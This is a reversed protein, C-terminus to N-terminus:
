EDDARLCEERLAPWLELFSRLRRVEEEVSIAERNTRASEAGIDIVDAGNELHCRAQTIAATPDLTGDGSFSDDNINVIGMLLPRRPFPITRSPTRLTM